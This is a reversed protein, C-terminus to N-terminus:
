ESHHDGDFRFRQDAEGSDAIVWESVTRVLETM